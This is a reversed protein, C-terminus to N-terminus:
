NPNHNNRGRAGHAAQGDNASNESLAALIQQHSADSRIMSVMQNVTDQDGNRVLGLLQELFSRYYVLEEALRDFTQSSDDPPELRASQSSQNRR